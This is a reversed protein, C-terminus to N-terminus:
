EWFCPITNIECITRVQELHAGFISQFVTTDVYKSVSRQIEDLLQKIIAARMDAYCKAYIAILAAIIQNDSEDLSSGVIECGELKWKSFEPIVLKTTYAVIESMGSELKIQDMGDLITPDKIIEEMSFNAIKKVFELFSLGVEGNLLGIAVHELQPVIREEGYFHLINSLDTWRRANLGSKNSDKSGSGGDDFHNPHRRLYALVYKHVNNNPVYNALWDNYRTVFYIPLIRGKHSNDLFEVINGDEDGLNGTLGFYVTDPIEYHHFQYNRFAGSLSDRVEKDLRNYEDILIFTAEGKADNVMAADLWPPMSHVAVKYPKGAKADELYMLGGVDGPDQQNMDILIVNVNMGVEKALFPGIDKLITTKGSGNPGQLFVVPKKCAIQVALVSPPVYKLIISM